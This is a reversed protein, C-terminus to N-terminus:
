HNKFTIFIHCARKALTLAISIIIYLQDAELAVDIKNVLVAMHQTIKSYINDGQSIHM